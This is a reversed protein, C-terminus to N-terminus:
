DTLSRPFAPSPAAGADLFRLMARAARRKLESWVEAERDRAAPDHLQPPLVIKGAPIAFSAGDAAHVRERVGHIGVSVTLYHHFRDAAGLVPYLPSGGGGTLVYRVGQYDQVGFCHVHGMYVREVKRRSLIGAFEVAGQKFGGLRAAASGGWLRLLAPPVHTFVISRRPGDLVRDLWRLQAATLRKSSTDVTVFRWGGRDFFYNSAGFLRRYLTSDSAGNPRSRDHNGIVTLYPTRVDVAAIEQFFRRYNRAIGRSVMDGLQVCFDVSHRQIAALQRAFMGPRNFLKRYIWFRGPEADGLVAFSFTEGESRPNQELRALHAKLRWPAALADLEELENPCLSDRRSM